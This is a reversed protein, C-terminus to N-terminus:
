CYSLLVQESNISVLSRLITQIDSGFRIFLPSKDNEDEGEYM